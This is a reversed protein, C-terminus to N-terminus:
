FLPWGSGIQCFPDFDGMFFGMWRNMEGYPFVWRKIWHPRVHRVWYHQCIDMTCRPLHLRTWYNKAFLHLNMVRPVYLFLVIDDRPRGKQANGLTFAEAVPVLNLCYARIMNCKPFHLHLEGCRLFRGVVIRNPKLRKPSHHWSSDQFMKSGHLGRIKSASFGQFGPFRCGPGKYTHVGAVKFGQWTNALKYLDHIIQIIRIKRYPLYVQWYGGWISRFCHLCVM